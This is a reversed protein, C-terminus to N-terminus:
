GTHLLVPLQVCSANGARDLFAKCARLDGLGRANGEDSPAKKNEKLGYASSKYTLQGKSVENQDGQPESQGPLWDTITLSNNM